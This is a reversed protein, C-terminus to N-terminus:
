KQYRNRNTLMQIDNILVVSYLANTTLQDLLNFFLDLTWGLIMSGFLKTYIIYNPLPSLEVVTAM